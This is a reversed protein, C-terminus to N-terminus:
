GWGAVLFFLWRVRVVNIGWLLMLVLELSLLASWVRTSFVGGLFFAFFFYNWPSNTDTYSIGIAGTCM